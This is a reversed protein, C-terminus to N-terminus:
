QQNDQTQREQRDRHRQRMQEHRERMETEMQEVKARQEPTLINLLEGRMAKHSEDIQARLAQARSAIQENDGGQPQQERQEHLSKLEERQPKINALFREIIVRAQGQQAETLDLERLIREFGMGRGRPGGRHREGRPGGGGREGQPAGIGQPGTQPQQALVPAGLVLALCFSAGAAILKIKFAM